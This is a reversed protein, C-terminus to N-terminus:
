APRPAYDAIGTGVLELSEALWGNFAATQRRKPFSQLYALVDASALLRFVLILQAAAVRPAPAHRGVGTEQALYAALADEFREWMLRMRPNLVANDGVMRLLRDLGAVAHPGSASMLERLLDGMADLPTRGVARDRIHAIITDRVRDEDAFVLDDKAPFYVFLTKASINVADAIEAVTVNDFGREAFMTEAVELIAKRTMLKKRERLGIGDHEVM